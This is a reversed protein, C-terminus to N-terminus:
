RPLEAAESGDAAKLRKARQLEQQAREPDFRALETTRPTKSELVACM